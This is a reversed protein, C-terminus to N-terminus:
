TKRWIERPSNENVTAAILAKATDVAIFPMVGKQWAQLLCTSPPLWKAMNLWLALWTAGLLYITAVGILAAGFTTWQTSKSRRESILGVVFAALPFGMLYGGTPGLLVLPGGRGAAFIPMGMLGATVYGMQSLMGLRSGLMLGSLLVFFVQLTIPVPTFPLSITARAGLATLAAFLAVLSLSGLLEWKASLTKSRAQM